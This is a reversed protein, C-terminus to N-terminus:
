DRPFAKCGDTPSWGNPDDSFSLASTKAPPGSRLVIKPTCSRSSAACREFAIIGHTHSLGRDREYKAQTPRQRHNARANM